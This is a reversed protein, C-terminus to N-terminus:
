PATRTIWLGFIGTRLGAFVSFLTTGAEIWESIVNTLTDVNRDPVPVLFARGPEREVGGVSM